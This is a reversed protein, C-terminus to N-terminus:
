DRDRGRELAELKKLLENEMRLRLNEAEKLKLQASLKELESMSVDDRRKGRRDTLGEVGDKEYKGVWSYIQQYSIKYKAITKGYDRNNAVCYSVIEVREDTTTKRGKTMHFSGEVPQKFEEHRNYKMIWERLQHDSRLNYKKQLESLSYRGSIYEEVATFKMEASYTANVAKTVLGDMGMSQYNTIWRRVTTQGIGHERAVDYQSAKGSLYKEVAAIKIEPAQKSKRGM